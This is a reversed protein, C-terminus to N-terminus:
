RPPVKDAANVYITPTAGDSSGVNYTISGDDGPISGVGRELTVNAGRRALYNYLTQATRTSASGFGVPVISVQPWHRVHRYVDDMLAETLEFSRRQCAIDINGANTTDVVSCVYGPPLQTIPQAAGLAPLALLATAMAGGHLFANM